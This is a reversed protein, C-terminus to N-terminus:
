VVGHEPCSVRRPTYVLVVAIMWLPVFEFHRIMTAHDYGPATRRCHGCRAKRQQHSQIEVEIQPRPQARLLRVDAYVFDKLPHVLNLITKVTLNMAPRPQTRRTLSVRNQGAAQGDCARKLRATM